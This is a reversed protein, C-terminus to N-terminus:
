EWALAYAVGVSAGKLAGEGIPFVLGTINPLDDKPLAPPNAVVVEGGIGFRKWGLAGPIDHGIQLALNLFRHAIGISQPGPDFVTKFVGFIFQSPRIIAHSVIGGNFM